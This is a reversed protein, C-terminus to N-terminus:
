AGPPQFVVDLGTEDDHYTPVSEKKGLFGSPSSTGQEWVTDDEVPYALNFRANVTVKFQPLAAPIIV